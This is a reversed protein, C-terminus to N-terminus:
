PMRYRNVFRRDIKRKLWMATRGAWWYGGRWALGSGDGLDMIGLYDRQPRFPTLPTRRLSALLNAMLIPAARVSYVGAKPLPRDTFDACSGVAFVRDDSAQLFRNVILGQASWALRQQGLWAPPAIGGALVVAHHDYAVQDDTQVQGETIATVSRGVRLELRNELARHLYHRAGAPLQTALQSKSEFLRVIGAQAALGRALNVALECGTAGGGVVSVVPQARDALAAMLQRLPAVPSAPIVQRDADLALGSGVNISLWDYAVPPGAALRVQRQILDIAVARDAVLNVGKAACLRDLKITLEQWAYRGSLFGGVMGSYAFDGPDILWLTAGSAILEPARRLLELHAHGAGLLVIRQAQCNM